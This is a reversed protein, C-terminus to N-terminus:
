TKWGRAISMWQTMRSQSARQKWFIQLQHPKQSSVNECFRGFYLHVLGPPIFHISKAEGAQLRQMRFFVNQAEFPGRCVVLVTELFNYENISQDAIKRWVFRPISVCKVDFDCKKLAADIKHAVSEM